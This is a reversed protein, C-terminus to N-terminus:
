GAQIGVGEALCPGQGVDESSDPKGPTGQGMSLCRGRGVGCNRVWLPIDSQAQYIRLKLQGLENKYQLMEAGKQAKYQELFVKDQETLQKHGQQSQLLDNWTHHG